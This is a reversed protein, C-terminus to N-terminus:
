SDLEQELLRYFQDRAQHEIWPRHGCNKLLHFQFNKLADRLPKETGEAPHPDYDGHIAVVPCRIHRSLELLMGSRRMQEAENWVSQFISFHYEMGTDAMPVPNYSDARSLLEGLRAFAKEKKGSRPQNLCNLLSEVESRDEPGLRNIRTRQIDPAYKEEFPGSGILILKRALRPYYAAAMFSLWAGWSFGVFVCPLHAASELLNKLEEIQGDVTAARLLPELIGRESSLEAAMPAMEGPAGPGGHILAAKYPKQGYYRMNEM